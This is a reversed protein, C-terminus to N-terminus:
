TISARPSCTATLLFAVLMGLSMTGEMVMKAGFVFMVLRDAGTVLDNARGFLLDLRILRFKANLSDVFHNLWAARRRETL